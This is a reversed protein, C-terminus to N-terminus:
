IRQRDNALMTGVGSDTFLELLLAHRRTGNIIHAESVGGKVAAIACELKPRMGGIVEPHSMLDDADNLDLRGVLKGDAKIGDVDTLLILKRAGLAIALKSAAHDANINLTEGQLNVSISSVIPLYGQRFLVELLATNTRVIEGVFGLDLGDRTTVKESLFLSADKGSLGVANGGCQNVLVTIERNIKGSLVMEVVEIAEADTVRLGDVFKAEVGLKEMWFTIEKGGGHVVVPCMGILKLLVINRAFDARLTPDSMAAGGYKIVIVQGAFKQIYPLAENLIGAKQLQEEFDMNKVIRPM